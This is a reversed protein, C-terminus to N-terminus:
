SQRAALTTVGESTQGSGGAAVPPNPNTSDIFEALRVKPVLLRRGIRLAPLQGARIMNCVTGKSVRLIAATEAATWVEADPLTV